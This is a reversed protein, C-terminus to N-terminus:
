HPSSVCLARELVFAEHLGIQNLWSATMNARV